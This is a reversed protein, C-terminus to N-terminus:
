EEVCVCDGSTDCEENFGEAEAEGGGEGERVTEVTTVSQSVTIKFIGLNIEFGGSTVTTVTDGDGLASTQVEGTDAANVFLGSLADVVSGVSVAHAAVAPLRQTNMRTIRDLAQARVAAPVRLATLAAGAMAHIKQNAAAPSRTGKHVRAVEQGIQVLTSVIIVDGPPEDDCAYPFIECLDPVDLPPYPFPGTCGDDDAIAQAHSPTAAILTIAAMAAPLLTRFM